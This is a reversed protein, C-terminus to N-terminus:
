WLGLVRHLFLNYVVDVIWIMVAMMFVTVIVVFTSGFLEARSSWSVKKMESETAILFDVAVPKNLYFGEVATMIAFLLFPIGYELYMKALALTTETEASM